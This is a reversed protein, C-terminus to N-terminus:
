SLSNELHTELRQERAKRRVFFGWLMLIPLTTFLMRYLIAELTQMVFFISFVVFLIYVPLWIGGREEANRWVRAYCWGILFSALIAGWSFEAFLDAVFGPAAGNAIASIEDVGGLGVNILYRAMGVDVYKDPWWQSPIPRIFVITLIRTGWYYRDIGAAFRNVVDVGYIFENAELTRETSESRLEDMTDMMANLATAPNQLLDSGLRFQDRFTVILMLLLGILAGGGLFLLIAPRRKRGLYYTAALAAFATFTPGRRAGLLGHIFMPSIFLLGAIVYRKRMGEARICAALAAVASISWFVADRTYGSEATGGGKEHSYAEFLGGVNNVNIAFAILSVLGLLIAIGFVRRAQWSELGAPAIEVSGSSRGGMVCGLILALICAANLAQITVLTRDSFISLVAGYDILEHPLYVYLFLVMPMLYALPHFVDKVGLLAWLFGASALVGIVVTLLEFGLM